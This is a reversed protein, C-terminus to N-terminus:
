LKLDIVVGGGRVVILADRVFRNEGSNGIFAVSDGHANRVITMAADVSDGAALRTFFLEAVPIAVPEVVSGSWGILACDPGFRNALGTATNAGDNASNCGNLFALTYNFTGPMNTGALTQGGGFDLGQFDGSLSRGHSISYWVLGLPVNNTVSALSLDSDTTVTYHSTQLSGAINALHAANGFTQRAVVAKAQYRIPSELANLRAFNTAGAQKWAFIRAHTGQNQPDIFQRTNRVQNTFSTPGTQRPPVVGDWWAMSAFKQGFINFPVERVLGVYPTGAITERATGTFNQGNQTVAYPFVYRSYGLYLPGPTQVQAITGARNTPTQYFPQNNKRIEIGDRDLAFVSRAGASPRSTTPVQAEPNLSFFVLGLTTNAPLNERFSLGNTDSAQNMVYLSAPALSAAGGEANYGTASASFEFLSGSGALGRGGTQLELQTEGKYSHNRDATRQYTSGTEWPINPIGPDNTYSFPEEWTYLGTIFELGNTGPFPYTTTRWERWVNSPSPYKVESYSTAAGSYGAGSRTWDLTQRNTSGTEYTPNDEQSRMTYSSVVIRPPKDFDFAADVGGASGPNGAPANYLGGLGGGGAMAQGGTGAGGNDSNPVARVAFSAVGGANLPVGEATWNGSEDVTARTSNVWVSYAPDSVTGNLNMTQDWLNPGSPDNLVLSVPSRSLNLTNTSAKGGADTFVLSVTGSTPTPLDELWFTGDREVLGGIEQEEDDITMRAVVSATPNDLRGRLTFTDAGLQAGNAPWFVTGVPAAPSATFDVIFSVTTAFTLGYADTFRLGVTNAGNTLPVDFCQFANTYRAPSNTFGSGPIVTRRTVFAELDTQVGAANTVDYRLTRLNLNISGTLQVVPFYTNTNVPSTYSVYVVPKSNLDTPDTGYAYEALNPVGDGDKDASADDVLLSLGYQAEWWDPLGDGDTDDVTHTIVYFGASFNTYSSDPLSYTATLAQVGGSSSGKEKQQKEWEKLWERYQKELEKEDPLAPPGEDKKKVKTQDTTTSPDTTPAALTAAAPSGPPSGSGGGGNLVPGLYPPVGGVHTFVTLNFPGAPLNTAVVKWPRSPHFSQRHLVMFQEGPSSPWTLIVNTGQSFSLQPTTAASTIGAPLLVAAVILTLINQKM